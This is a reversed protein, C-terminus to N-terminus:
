FMFAVSVGGTMGRKKGAFGSLNLDLKWPSKADPQMTAGLEMRVSGGTPDTGRIAFGDATGTAKGDFEHEYALGGYFDWGARKITYRAGIRIVQSTLADLEYQGGFDFSTSNRRNMFYKGYVDLTNGGALTIEKGVGIHAGWYPADVDCNYPEDNEDLMVSRTEGHVSGARLSGEIYTGSKATWKALLGGGTYRTSGDGRLDGNHTTYNGNGYEFFAGYKMTGREKKNERGLALIANWTKVDIHSGTEQRMAGGGFNAYCSVGDAGVNSALGLGETATGIFDNGASLTAMGADAGMLVNHTEEQVEVDPTGDPKTGVEFILDNGNVSVKGNGELTTGIRFRKGTITGTYGAMPGQILTTTPNAKINSAGTFLINETNITPQGGGTNTIATATLSPTGWKAHRINITEFNEVNQHVKNAGFLNLTNGTVADGTGTDRYGGYVSGFVAGNFLRVTNGTANGNNTRGGYVDQGTKSDKLTVTNGTVDGKGKDIYGGYVSYASTSNILLVTNDTASSNVISAGRDAYGGCVSGYVTTNTLRVTNESSTGAGGTNGGVVNFGVMTNELTITNRSANGPGEVYGGYVNISVTTNAANVTNGTAYGGSRKVCGGYVSHSVESGNLTVTNNKADGEGLSRACGGFVNGWITTDDATISNGIADGTNKSYGGYVDAIISSNQLNVTNNMANGYMTMAGCVDKGGTITSNKIIVSNGKLDGEYTVEGYIPGELTVGNFYRNASAVGGSAMWLSVALALAAQAKKNTLPTNRTKM